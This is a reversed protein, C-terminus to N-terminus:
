RYDEMLKDLASKGPCLQVYPVQTLPGDCTDAEEHMEGRSEDLHLLGTPIEGRAQHEQLYAYVQARTSTPDYDKPVKTFRVVSGDHMTVHKTTGEDYTATIEKAQPVFDANLVELKHKRTHSYSKTSGEHDNFTV